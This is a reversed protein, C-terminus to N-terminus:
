GAGKWVELSWFCILFWFVLGFVLFGFGLSCVLLWFGSDLGGFCFGVWFRFLFVVGFGFGFVLGFGLCFLLGLVLVLGFVFLFWGM